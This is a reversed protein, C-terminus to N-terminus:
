LMYKEVDEHSFYNFETVTFAARGNDDEYVTYSTSHKGLYDSLIYDIYDDTTMYDIDPIITNTNVIRFDGNMKDRIANKIELASDTLIHVSPKEHEKIFGLGYKKPIEDTEYVLVELEDIFVRQLEKLNKNNVVDIVDNFVNDDTKEHLMWKIIHEFDSANDCTFNKIVSYYTTKDPSNFLLTIM